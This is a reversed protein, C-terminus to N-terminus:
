PKPKFNVIVSDALKNQACVRLSRQKFAEFAQEVGAKRDNGIPELNMNDTLQFLQGRSLFLDKDLFDVLENKNRMLPITKNSKFASATDLATGIWHANKPFQLNYNRLYALLTPTIDFQSNVAAISKSRKLLPSYIILPVHFRDIQTAIPIEPMRHDGTIIFITNAFDARKRYQAFFSKIADDMYLISAYQKDYKRYEGKKDASIGLQQMRKEFATAYFAADPILFPDHTALTLLISFNPKPTKTPVTSLYKQFLERDGYGWSFGSPSAPLQKYLATSFNKKDVIDATNNRQLFVDMKDFSAESGYYFSTNYGNLNLLQTLSQHQPMKTGMELFGKEGFPASALVSPLVAFTRGGNSLFNTFYLSKGALSDLFPTFSGLYANTGSYAKGLGEVILMVINPPVGATDTRMFASLVDATNDPHVFPYDSNLATTDIAADIYFAENSFDTTRTFYTNTQEWFYGLKNTSIYYATESSIKKSDPTLGILGTLKAAVAVMSIAAGSMVVWKNLRVRLLLYLFLISSVVIVCVVWVSIGASAQMTQKIEDFTYAFVDSGLPSLAASFYQDLLLTAFLCLIAGTIALFRAVRVLLMCLVLYPILAYATLWGVLVVDYLIGKLMYQWADTPLSHLYTLRVYALGRYAILLLLVWTSLQFFTFLVALARTSFTPHNKHQM